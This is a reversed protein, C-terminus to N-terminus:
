TATLCKGRLRPEVGKEQASKVIGELSVIQEVISSEILM